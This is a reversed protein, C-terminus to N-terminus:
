ILHISVKRTLATFPRCRMRPRATAGLRRWLRCLSITARLEWARSGQGRATEIARGFCQEAADVQEPSQALVLEGQLRYLEAQHCRDDNKAAVTLGEDLVKRADEFRASQTYAEGLIALYSPTRVEAGTARFDRYGTLLTPLADACRGQLLM